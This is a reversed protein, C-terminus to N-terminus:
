NGSAERLATERIRRHSAHWTVVADRVLLAQPSQHVVGTREAVAASVPRARQIEVLAFIMGTGSGEAGSGGDERPEDGHAQARSEAFRQFERYAYASTGCTLSHKFIWVPTEASAELLEDLQQVTDIRRIASM